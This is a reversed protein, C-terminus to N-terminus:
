ALLWARAEAQQEAAFFEVPRGVTEFHRANLLRALPYSIGLAVATWIQARRPLHAAVWPVSGLRWFVYGHMAAWAALAVAIFLVVRLPNM